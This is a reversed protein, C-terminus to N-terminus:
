PAAELVQVGGDCTPVTLSHWREYCVRPVHICASDEWTARRWGEDVGNSWAAWLAAVPLLAVVLVLAPTALAVALRKM